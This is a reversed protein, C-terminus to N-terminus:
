YAGGHVSVETIVADVLGDLCLKALQADAEYPSWVVHVRPQNHNRLARQVKKMVAVAFDNNINICRKYKTKAKRQRGQQHLARAQKLNELRQREKKESKDAKLPCRKGDMVLYVQPINFRQFLRQLRKCFYNASVNVSQPDIRKREVQEVYRHAIPEISSFMWSSSDVALTKGQFEKLTTKRTVFGLCKLLGQIGMITLNPPVVLGIWVVSVVM